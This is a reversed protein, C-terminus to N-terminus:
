RLREKSCFGSPFLRAMALDFTDQGHPRDPRAQPWCNTFVKVSVLNHRVITSHPRSGFAYWRARAKPYWWGM